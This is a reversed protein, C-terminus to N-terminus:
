LFLMVVYNASAWLRPDSLIDRCHLSTISDAIILLVYDEVGYQWIERSQSNKLELGFSAKVQLFLKLILTNTIDSKLSERDLLPSLVLKAENTLLSQILKLCGIIYYLPHIVAKFPGKQVTLVNM